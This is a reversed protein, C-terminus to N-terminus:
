RDLVDNDDDFDFYYDVLRLMIDVMEDNYSRLEAARIDESLELSNLPVVLPLPVDVDDLRLYPVRYESSESRDSELEGGSAWLGM